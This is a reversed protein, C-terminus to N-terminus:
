VRERCSARGIKPQGACLFLANESGTANIKEMQEPNCLFIRSGPKQMGDEFFLPRKVPQRPDHIQETMQPYRYKLESAIFEKQIM